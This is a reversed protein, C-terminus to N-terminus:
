LPIHYKNAAEVVKKIDIFEATWKKCPHGIFKIKDHYREIANLYAETMHEMSWNNKAYVIEHCSLILFDSTIWQIDFCCDGAQNLIDWEIGIIVEVDNHVNKWHRASWRFNRLALKNADILAQSHDTIAIKKLWIKGAYQVIEDITNMGDSYNMSHIHYDEHITNLIKM